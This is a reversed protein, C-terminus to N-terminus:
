PQDSPPKVVKYEGELVQGPSQSSPGRPQGPAADPGGGATGGAGNRSLWWHRIRVAALFVIGVAMLGLAVFLGVFFTLAALSLGAIAALVKGFRTKPGIPPQFQYVPMM